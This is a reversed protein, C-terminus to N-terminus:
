TDIMLITLVPPPQKPSLENSAVGGLAQGFDPGRKLILIQM